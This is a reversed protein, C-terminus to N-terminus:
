WKMHKSFDLELMGPEPASCPGTTCQKFLAYLKLKQAHAYASKSRAALM